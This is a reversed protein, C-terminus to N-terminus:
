EPAGIASDLARRALWGLIGLVMVSLGIAIAASGFADRQSFDLTSLHTGAKVAVATRPALGVLTGLLYAGIPVRAAALAANSLAFPSNPPVRVLTVVFLTKWWSRGVLANRIALWRPREALVQAAHAVSWRRAWAYNIGSALVFGALAAPIGIRDGFAWGGLLAPAYTPLLAFGGLLAFGAIYLAVGEGGLGQLWPGIRSVYGLLLAAGIPPLALSIIALPALRRAATSGTPPQNM